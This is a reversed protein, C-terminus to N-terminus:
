QTFALFEFCLLFCLCNLHSLRFYLNLEILNILDWAIENQFEMEM